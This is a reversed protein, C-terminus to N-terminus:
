VRAPALFDVIRSGVEDPRELHLFHGCGALVETRCEADCMTASEALFHAGICGDDAGALFLAPAALRGFSAAQQVAALDEAQRRVDFTQRYFEIAAELAGPHALTAKLAALDAPDPGYGPSWDRWLREVFAFDDAAVVTEPIALLQFFWAYWSRKLQEWDSAMREALVAPHPVALSVVRAVRDPQYAAAGVAAIAGWDHGIVVAPRGAPALASILALADLVLCASQYRGDPALGTPHYGRLWPAVAHWGAAALDALLRRFSPAHDPFGHLCLALPEGPEGAELYAVDVDNVSIRRPASPDLM